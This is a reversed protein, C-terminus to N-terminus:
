RSYEERAREELRRRLDDLARRDYLRGSAITAGHLLFPNLLAAVTGALLIGGDVDVLTVNRISLTDSHTGSPIGGTPTSGGGAAMLAWAVAVGVIRNM